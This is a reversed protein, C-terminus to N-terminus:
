DSSSRRAENLGNNKRARHLQQPMSLQREFQSVARAYEGRIAEFAARADDRICQGMQKRQLLALLREVADSPTKCVHVASLEGALPVGRVGAETGLVHLGASLAEMVKIPLGTGANSTNVLVDHSELVAALDDVRGLFHADRRDVHRSLMNGVSGAVSFKLDPIDQKILPYWQTLFAELTSVNVDNSSGIFCLSLCQPDTTDNIKLREPVYPLTLINTHGRARLAREDNEQITLILDARGLARDENHPSTSFWQPRRGMELFMKYRDGFLDHTDIVKVVGTLGVLAKSYFIYECVIVTAGYQTILGNLTKGIRSFYWSDLPLNCLSYARLFKGVRTRLLWPRLPHKKKADMIKIHRGNLEESMREHDGQDHEVHFFVVEYDLSQLIRVIQGVRKRNGEWDPLFPVPSLVIARKKNM